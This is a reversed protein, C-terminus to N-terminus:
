DEARRIWHLKTEKDEKEKNWFFWAYAQASSETQSFDGNKYCKIRDVYVYVDTPPNESLINEYRGKGELFQLRALMLIGKEAIELARITFPEITSYPPNMIIYDVSNYPYDDSFFDLGYDFIIFDSNEKPMNEPYKRWCYEKAGRNKIDTAIISSPMGKGFEAEDQLYDFIADLMHGGGVCPELIIKNHFDIDLRQLINLVEETPTAYYDLADREKHNKDYSNYLGLKNYTKNDPM